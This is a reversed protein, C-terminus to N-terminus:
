FAAHQDRRERDNPIQEPVSRRNSPLSVPLNKLAEIDNRITDPLRVEIDFHRDGEFV